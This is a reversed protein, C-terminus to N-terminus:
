LMSFCPLSQWTHRLTQSCMVVFLKVKQVDIKALKDFMGAYAQKEKQRQERLKNSAIVLQQRAAKNEPDIQV